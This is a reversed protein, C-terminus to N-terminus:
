LFAGPPISTSVGARQLFLHILTGSLSREEPGKINVVTIQSTVLHSESSDCLSDQLCGELAKILLIIPTKLHIFMCKEIKRFNSEM